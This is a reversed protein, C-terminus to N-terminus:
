ELRRHAEAIDNSLHNMTNEFTETIRDLSTDIGGLLGGTDERITEHLHDIAANVAEKIQAALM